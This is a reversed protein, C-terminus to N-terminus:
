IKIDKNITDLEICVQLLRDELKKKESSLRKIAIDKPEKHEYSFSEFGKSWDIADEKNHFEKGGLIKIGINSEDSYEIYAYMGSQINRSVQRILAM